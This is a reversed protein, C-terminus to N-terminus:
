TSSRRLDKVLRSHIHGILRYLDYCYVSPNRFGTGPRYRHPYLGAGCVRGFRCSKCTDSLAEWGLQRAVMGPHELALDFPHDVINLGTAPAGHQVVKLADTQEITGDTEIVVLSTPTLGVSESASKGGLLMHIIEEFLRVVTEGSSGYWRDFVAVLWDGYPTKKPDASRGPPPSDWTGHPLLFDIMPPRFELLAEYTEIPHNALDVTCLLGSYLHEFAPSMLLQLARAVPEYSSRGDSFRRNRDNGRPSGDLSVGVKVDLDAFCRLADDDLLVGNTQVAADVRLGPGAQSRITEVAARLYAHGVLLPEGGHLILRVSDVQHRRAHETIRAAAATILAPAMVKPRSRWSQDALTYVYCYDCALNCRSHVKLLFQRFPRPEWGDQLM